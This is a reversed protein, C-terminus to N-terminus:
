DKARLYQGKEVCLGTEKYSLIITHCDYPTMFKKLRGTSANESESFCQGGFSTFDRFFYLYHKQAKAQCIMFEDRQVFAYNLGQAILAVVGIKLLGRGFSKISKRKNKVFKAWAIKMKHPHM